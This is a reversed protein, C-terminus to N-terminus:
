WYEEVIMGQPDAVGEVAKSGLSPPSLRSQQQLLSNYAEECHEKRKAVLTLVIFNSIKEAHQVFM